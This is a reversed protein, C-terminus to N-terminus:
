DEQLLNEFGKGYVGRADSVVFFASEDIEQVLARLRAIQPPKVVCLIVQKDKGSWAGQGHLLTAGRGLRQTIARRLEESRDSIIYCIRSDVPGYLILTVIKNSIYMCILTYMCSDFRRFILAYALIIVADLLLIFTSFNIHPYRRRLMRAPIDVGGTTAGTTYILGFGAGKVLGGYVAALMPDATIPRTVPELLDIAMSSLVMCVGTLAVFRKRLSKWAWLFLPVNLCIVAVGVPFGTLLNLIQSIGTVGGSVIHNPFTLCRFSLGTLVSGILIKFLDLPHLHKIHKRLVM